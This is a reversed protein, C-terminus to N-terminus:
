LPRVGKFEGFPVSGKSRAGGRSLPTVRRRLLAAMEKHFRESGLAFGSNTSARIQEVFQAPLENSFLERYAAHRDPLERGLSEMVPHHRIVADPAGLANARYSSWRYAAPDDVMGARVPNLEIYRHCALLYGESDVLCSRYRGEWLTGTRQRRRNIYQVYRQSLLKMADPIGDADASTMLLHVHNTMLVYAHVAVGRGEAQRRLEELYYARDADAFFCPARNHGRQIVHFPVEAVRLRAQRPM